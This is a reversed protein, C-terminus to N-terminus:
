GTLVVKAGLFHAEGVTAVIFSITLEFMQVGVVTLDVNSLERNPLFRMVPNLSSFPTQTLLNNNIFAFNDVGSM